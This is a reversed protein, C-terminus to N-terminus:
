RLTALQRTLREFLQADDIVDVVTANPPNKTSNWWDIVSSGMTAAGETEVHVHCDRGTFLDPWLLYAIVCPDHMPHGEVGFKAKAGPRHRSLMGHISKAVPTGLAAIAATREHTAMAQHTAHLGFLVIPVGSELVIRAAHPDVYFNFEAAPTVNGLDRAGGMLVIRAVKAKLEPAQAFALAINTLPGLPCLTISRDEAAELTDLIFQVAHKKQAKGRPPPLGAGELGDPGCIFEATKLPRLLPQSAGRYVPVDGRGAVEILRLVNATTLDVPVNGAVTTIGLLELRDSAALALFIALADDQGPDTDIIIKM